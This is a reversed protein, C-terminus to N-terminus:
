LAGERIRAEGADGLPPAKRSVERFRFSAKVRGHPRGDVEVYPYISYNLSTGRAGPLRIDRGVTFEVRDADLGGYLLERKHPHRHAESADLPVWGRHSLHFEAWCHYGPISGQTRGAPLPFGMIFRAPIGLARAEGIFLSHFDTCNGRRADCAYLADGRGWGRGSKDYKMSDVIHDYLARARARPTGHGVAVRAAEHAIQRDIPVLRDAELFRALAAKQAGAQRGGPSSERGLVRYAYRTVTFRLVASPPNGRGASLDIRAFRNGYEPDRVIEWPGDAELRLGSVRQRDSEAPLPIWAVVRRADAPLDRVEFKYEFAVTRERRPCRPAGSTQAGGACGGGACLGALALALAARGARWPRRCSTRRATM